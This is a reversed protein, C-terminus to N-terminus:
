RRYFLLVVYFRVKAHCKLILLFFTFIMLFPM